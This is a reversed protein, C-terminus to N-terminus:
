NELVELEKGSLLIHRNSKAVEVKQELLKRAVQGPNTSRNNETRIVPAMTDHTLRIQGTQQTPHWHHDFEYAIREVLLQLEILRDVLSEVNAIHPYHLGIEEVTRVAATGYSTTFFLLFDLAIGNSIATQLDYKTITNDM